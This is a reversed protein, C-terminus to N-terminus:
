IRSENRPSSGRIREHQYMRSIAFAGEFQECAVTVLLKADDRFRRADDAKGLGGDPGYRAIRNLLLRTQDPKILPAQMQALVGGADRFIVRGKPLGEADGSGLIYISQYMDALGFVVRNEFNATIMSTLVDKGTKQTAIVLHVGPARGASAIKAFLHEAWDRITFGGRKIGKGPDVDIKERNLMLFFIEDIVIAIRRMYVGTQRAYDDVDSADEKRMLELRRELEKQAAELLQITDEPKYSFRRVIGPHQRTGMLPKYRNLEAGGKHDALWIEIDGPTNRSVWTTLMSHILTSKGKNTPGVILLHPLDALDAWRHEGAEDLGLPFALPPAETPLKFAGIPFVEPFSAGGIRVVFCMKGTPLEDVRVGAHCRDQLSQLVNEDRLDNTRVGVPLRRLDLPMWLEDHTLLLPYEFRVRQVAGRKKRGRAVRRTFGLRSLESLVLSAYRQAERRRRAEEGGRVLLFRRLGAGLPRAALGTLFTIPKFVLTFARM